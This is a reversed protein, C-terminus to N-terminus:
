SGRGFATAKGLQAAPKQQTERHQIGQSRWRHPNGTAPGQSRRPPGCQQPGESQCPTRGHGIPRSAHRGPRALLASLRPGAPGRGDHSRNRGQRCQKQREGARNCPTDPGEPVSQARAAIPMVLLCAGTTQPTLGAAPRNAAVKVALTRARHGARAPGAAKSTACSRRGPRRRWATMDGGGKAATFRTPQDRWNVRPRGRAAPAPHRAQPSPAQPPFTRKDGANHSCPRSSWCRRPSRLSRARRGPRHARPQPDARSSSCGQRSCALSTAQTIGIDVEKSQAGARPSPRADRAITVPRALSGSHLWCRPQPRQQEPAAAGNCAFRQGPRRPSFAGQQHGVERAVWRGRLGNQGGRAPATAPDQFVHALRGVPDLARSV